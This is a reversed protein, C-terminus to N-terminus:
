RRSLSVHQHVGPEQAAPQDPRQCSADDAPRNESGVPAFLEPGGLQGPHGGPEHQRQYQGAEEAVQDLQDAQDQADQGADGDQRQQEEGSGGDDGFTEPRHGTEPAAPSKTLWWNQRTSPVTSSHAKSMVM